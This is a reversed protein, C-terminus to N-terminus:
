DVMLLSLPFRIYLWVVHAIVEDRLRLHRYLCDHVIPTM